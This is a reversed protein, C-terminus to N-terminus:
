ISKNKINSADHKFTQVTKTIRKGFTLPHKHASISLDALQTTVVGGLLPLRAAAKLLLPHSQAQALWATRHHQKSTSRTERGRM